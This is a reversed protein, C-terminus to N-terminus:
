LKENVTSVGGATLVVTGAFPAVLTSAVIVGATVNLL